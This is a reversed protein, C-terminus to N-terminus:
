TSTASATPARRGALPSSWVLCATGNGLLDMVAVSALNDVHPLTEIRRGESWSNGSENSYVVAVDDELYIIDTCGSGDIDALRVRAQSFADPSGLLPANDMKVKAGFRGYGSARGVAVSGNRIRVLDTLGDGSMDALYASQTGDAFLM